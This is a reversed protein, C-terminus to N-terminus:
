HLRLDLRGLREVEKDLKNLQEAHDENIERQKSSIKGGGGGGGDGSAAAEAAALKIKKDFEGM